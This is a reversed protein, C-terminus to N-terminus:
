RRILRTLASVGAGAFSAAYPLWFPFALLAPAVISTVFRNPASAPSTEPPTVTKPPEYSAISAEPQALWPPMVISKVAPRIASTNRVAKAVPTRLNKRIPDIEQLKGPDVVPVVVNTGPVQQWTYMAMAARVVDAPVNYRNALSTLANTYDQTEVLARGVDQVDGRQLMRGALQEVSGMRDVYSGGLKALDGTTEEALIQGVSKGQRAGKAVAEAFHAARDVLENGKTYYYLVQFGADQLSKGRALALGAEFAIVGQEGVQDRIAKRIANAAAEDFSQGALMGAGLTAGSKFAQQAAAGGPVALAMTDVAVQDMSQGLAIAAASNMAIALGTGIGPVMAIYPAAKQLSRAYAKGGESLAEGVARGVPRGENINKAVNAGTEAFWVYPGIWINTYKFTDWWWKVVDAVTATADDIIEHGPIRDWGSSVVDAIADFAPDIIPVDVLGLLGVRDESRARM